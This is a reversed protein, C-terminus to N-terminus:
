GWVEGKEKIKRSRRLADFILLFALGLFIFPLIEILQKEIPPPYILIWYKQQSWWIVFYGIVIFTFSLAIEIIPIKNKILYGRRKKISKPTNKEHIVM